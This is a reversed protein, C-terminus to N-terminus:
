VISKRDGDTKETIYGIAFYKQVPDGEVYMGTTEDYYEGMIKALVDEPIASSEIGVEDGGTAQIVIAPVNDYYKKASTTETSKSLSSVGALAFPEGYTIEDETDTLLEAAVLGRIGRWDVIKM